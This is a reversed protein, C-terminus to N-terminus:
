QCDGALASGNCLNEFLLGIGAPLIPKGSPNRIVNFAALGAVRVQGSEVVLNDLLVSGASTSIGPGGNRRLQNGSVVSGLFVEIGKTANDDVANEVMVLGSGATIGRFNGYVQNRAVVAFSPGSIGALGNRTAQVDRVLGGYSYFVGSLRNEAVTVHEVRAHEQLQIGSAAFGRITGNRVTTYSISSSTPAVIGNGSGSDPVCVPGPLTCSVPGQITFGGLDLWVHDAGVRIADVNHDTVELDGTLVYSDGTLTVPFGASDGPGCGTQVACAQNIEIRGDAGRATLGVLTIAASVLATVGGCLTKRLM